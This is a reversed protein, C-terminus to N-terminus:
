TEESPSGWAFLPLQITSSHESVSNHAQSSHISSIQERHLLTTIVQRVLDLRSSGSTQAKPERPNSVCESIENHSVKAMNLILM